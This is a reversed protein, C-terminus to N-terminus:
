GPYANDDFRLAEAATAIARSSRQDIQPGNGVRCSARRAVNHEIRACAWVVCSAARQDHGMGM